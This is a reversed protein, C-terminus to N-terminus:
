GKIGGLSAILTALQPQSQLFAAVDDAAKQRSALYPLRADRKTRVVVLVPAWPSGVVSRWAQQARGALGLQAPKGEIWLSTAAVHSAEVAEILRWAGNPANPAQLPTSQVDEAGDMDTLRRREAVLQSTPSRPSFVEVTLTLVGQGCDFRQVTIRGPAGLAETPPAPEAKCAATPQLLPMAAAMDPTATRDLADAVAPSLAALLVLGATGFMAPRFHNWDPLRRAHQSPPAPQDERFPLGLVILILIVISFFIWGYLIHDAEVAQASGM